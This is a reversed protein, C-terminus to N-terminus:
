IMSLKQEALTAGVGAYWRGFGESSQRNILRFRFFFFGLLFDINIANWAVSRSFGAFFRKWKEFFYLFFSCLAAVLM